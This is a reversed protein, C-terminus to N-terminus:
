GGYGPVWWSPVPLAYVPNYVGPLTSPLSVGQIYVRHIGVM